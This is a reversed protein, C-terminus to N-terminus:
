NSLYGDYEQYVVENGSADVGDVEVYVNGDGDTVALGHVENGAPDV